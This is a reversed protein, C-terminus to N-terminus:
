GGDGKRRNKQSSPPAVELTRKESDPSENKAPMLRSLPEAPRLLSLPTVVAATNSNAAVAAVTYTSTTATTSAMEHVPPSMLSTSHPPAKEYDDRGNDTNDGGHNDM